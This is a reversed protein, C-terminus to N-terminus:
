RHALMRASEHDISRRHAHSEGGQSAVDAPKSVAVLAGNQLVIRLM